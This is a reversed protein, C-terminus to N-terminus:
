DVTTSFFNLLRETFRDDSLHITHAGELLGGAEAILCAAEHKCTYHNQIELVDRQFFPCSCFSNIVIYEEGKSGKVSFSKRGSPIAIYRIIKKRDISDLARHIVQHPKIELSEVCMLTQGTCGIRKIVEIMERFSPCLESM